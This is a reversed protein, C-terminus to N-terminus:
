NFEVIPVLFNEIHLLVNYFMGQLKKCCSSNTLKSFLVQYDYFTLM